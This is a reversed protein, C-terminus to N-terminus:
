FHLNRSESLGRSLRDRRCRGPERGSDHPLQTVECLHVQMDLAGMGTGSPKTPYFAGFVRDIDRPDIGPGSDRVGVLVGGTQSQEASIPLERAAAHLSQASCSQGPAPADERCKCIWGFSEAFLLSDACSTEITMRSHVAVSRM